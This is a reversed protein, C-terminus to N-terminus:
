FIINFNFNNIQANGQRTEDLFDVRSLAPSHMGAKIAKPLAIFLEMEMGLAFNELISCKKKEFGLRGCIYLYITLYGRNSPFDERNKM